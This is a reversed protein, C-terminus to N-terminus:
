GVCVAEASWKRMTSLHSSKVKDSTDVMHKIEEYSAPHRLNQQLTPIAVWGHPDAQPLTTHRLLYSVEKSLRIM